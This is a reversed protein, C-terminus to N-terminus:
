FCKWQTLSYFNEDGWAYVMVARVKDEIVGNILQKQHSSLSTNVKINTSLLGCDVDFTYDGITFAQQKTIQYDTQRLLRQKRM